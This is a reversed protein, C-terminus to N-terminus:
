STCVVAPGPYNNADGARLERGELWSALLTVRIVSAIEDLSADGAAIRRRAVGVAAADVYAEMNPPCAQVGDLVKSEHGTLGRILNPLFDIKTRRWRVTEPLRDAMARRLVRRGYGDKLKQEPPLALTFGVLRADWFPYRPDVSFAHAICDLIEFAYAREPRDLLLQHREHETAANAPNPCARM